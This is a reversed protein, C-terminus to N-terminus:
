KTQEAERWLKEAEAWTDHLRQRISLDQFPTTNKRRQDQPAIPIAKRIAGMEAAAKDRERMEWYVAARYARAPSFKPNRNFSSVLAKEAEQYNGQLYYSQGLVYPYHASHFPDLRMAKQVNDIAENTRGAYNLVEALVGYSDADNPDLAVAKQAAAIALDHKRQYVYILALQKHGHPLSADLEVAREAMALAQRESEDPNASWAWIWDRRHTSALTAYARAFKPDLTIAQNLFEQAQLNADKTAQRFLERAHVYHDWAQQNDTYNKEMSHEEGEKLRVALSTVIKRTIEDQLAFISKAERDYREAWLHYGSIADVLGVTIRVRGDAKRVSGNLVYRVGLERSVQDTKVAKGKYTFATYRAIVFLGSIRSLNTILDETIGDSFYEQEPDLSLNAFPLVAISPKTPLPLATAEPSRLTTVLLPSRVIFRWGTVGGALILLVGTFALAARWRPQAIHRRSVSMRPAGADAEMSVRYVRVPKATNKVTHEGEFVYALDLKGEVQDYATGSVCIGGPEALGELRAAINVGDGYIREGEVIVDGLNIGIRFEMRRHLPLEGNRASLERQIAVAAQVADVVSAFEALLNDGPSDVVRGRHQQILASMAQRYSTLTRVTGEEDEGMLLGYGTVDASLIAALKREMSVVAMPLAGAVPQM